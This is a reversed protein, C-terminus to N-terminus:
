NLGDLLNMVNQKQEKVLHIYTNSTIRIDAHGLLESVTKLEAGMKFLLSAFTHRTVHLGKHEIGAETLIYDFTNQLTRPRVPKGEKTSIIYNSSTKRLHSLAEVARRPLPIRRESNKTKATDQEVLRYKAGKSSRNKILAINKGITITNNIECYDDWNLACAEGVRIGTYIMLVVGWGNRYKLNGNMYRSNAVEIIKTVEEDTFIEIKKNDFKSKGPLSVTAMPNYKLDRRAVAYKFCANLADYIKKISSYSITEIKKNILTRQIVFDTIENTKYHGIAPRIHNKITSELRDFSLPKLENIKTHNLWNMIYIDFCPLDSEEDGFKILTKYDDLKEVVEKRTKGYFAKIIQKGESNHGIQLRATWSGNQRQSINGEGSSRKTANKKNAM